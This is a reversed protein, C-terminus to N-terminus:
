AESGSRGAGALGYPSTAGAPWVMAFLDGGISTMHPYIVCLAADTAVAADVANGGDRLVQAGIESALRHPSSVLGQTM